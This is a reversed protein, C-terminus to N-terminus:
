SFHQAKAFDVGKGKGYGFEARESPGLEVGEIVARKWVFAFFCRASTFFGVDKFIV